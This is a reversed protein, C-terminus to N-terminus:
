FFARSRKLEVLRGKFAERSLQSWRAPEVGSSQEPFIVNSVDSDRDISSHRQHYAHSSDCAYLGINTGIGTSTHVLSLAKSQDEKVRHEQNSPVFTGHLVYTKWYKHSAETLLDQQQYLHQIFNLFIKVYNHKAM